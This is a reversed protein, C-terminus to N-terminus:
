KHGLGISLGFLLAACALHIILWGKQWKPREQWPQEQNFPDFALAIGLEISATSYDKQFIIFYAALIWFGIYIFKNYPSKM